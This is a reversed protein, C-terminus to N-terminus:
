SPVSRQSRHPHYLSLPHPRPPPYHCHYHYHYHYHCHILPSHHTTTSLHTLTPARRYSAIRSLVTFYLLSSVLRYSITSILRSPLIYYLHSSVTHYLLSSVLRYSITSILRSPIIYYSILRCPIHYYFRSSVIDYSLLRGSLLLSDLSAETELQQLLGQVVQQARLAPAPLGQLNTLAAALRTVTDPNHTLLNKVTAFASTLRQLRVAVTADLTVLQPDTISAPTLAAAPTSTLIAGTISTSTRTGSNPATQTAPPASSPFGASSGALRGHIPSSSRSRSKGETGCSGGEGGVIGVVMNRHVNTLPLRKSLVLGATAIDSLTAHARPVVAHITELEDRLTSLGKHTRIIELAVQERARLSAAEEECDHVCKWAALLDKESAQQEVADQVLLNYKLLLLQKFATQLYDVDFVGDDSIAPDDNEEQSKLQAPELSQSTSETVKLLSSSIPREGSVATASATRPRPRARAPAVTPTSSIKAVSASSTPLRAATKVPLSTSSATASPAIGSATKQGKWQKLRDSVSSM